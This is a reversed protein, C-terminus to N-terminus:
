CHSDRVLEPGDNALPPPIQPQQPQSPRRDPPSKRGTAAPKDSSQESAM